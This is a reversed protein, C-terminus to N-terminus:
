LFNYSLQGMVTVICNEYSPSPSTNKQHFKLEGSKNPIKNLRSQVWPNQSECFEPVGYVYNSGAYVM